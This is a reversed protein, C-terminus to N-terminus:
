LLYRFTIAPLVVTSSYNGTLNRFESNIVDTSIGFAYAVVADILLNEDQYGIGLSVWHQDVSPFLMNYAANTNPSQSFRYGTRLVVESTKYEIGFGADITNDFSLTFSSPNIGTLSDTSSLNQQWTSNDFTFDFTKQISNWLNYQVDVNVKLNDTWEYILGGGFIWPMEFTGSLNVNSPVSDLVALMRSSATGELNTKFGSRSMVGIRLQENLQLSAGLNFGFSYGDQNYNFQYGPLGLTDNWRENTRPFSTHQEMYYYHASVGVSLKGFAAAFSASAADITLQNFFDFTLLSTSSDGIFLNVYPWNIKYDVGRQYSLAATFSPSLSWFIGGGFSFDDDQFSKFHNNNFNEFEQQGVNDVIFFELGKSNQFNITSPNGLVSQLGDSGTFYLGNLSLTKARSATSFNVDGAFLSFNISLMLFITYVTKNQKM